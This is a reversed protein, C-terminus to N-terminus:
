VPFYYHLFCLKRYGNEQCPTNFSIPEFLWMLSRFLVIHDLVTFDSLRYPSYVNISYKILQASFVASYCVFWVHHKGRESEASESRLGPSKLSGAVASRDGKEKSKSEKIADRERSPEIPEGNGAKAKDDKSSKEEVKVKERDAKPTKEKGERAPREEKGAREDRQKERCNEAKTEPTSGPTKEKKEKKEKGSKEKDDREKRIQHQLLISM